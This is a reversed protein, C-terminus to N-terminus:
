DAAPPAEAPSSGAPLKQLGSMPYFILLWEILNGGLKPTVGPVRNM